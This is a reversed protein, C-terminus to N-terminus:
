VIAFQQYLLARVNFYTECLPGEVLLAGSEDNRIAVSDGCVLMGRQFGAEIGAKQLAAKFESLRVNGVFVSHHGLLKKQQVADIVPVSGGEASITGDIWALEQDQVRAFTLSSVLSDKLRAKYIFKELTVSVSGGVAPAHLREPAVIDANCQGLLHQTDQESGHVLILQQPRVNALIKLMSDGDSRGEFDMYYIPSEVKLTVTTQMYRSPEVLRNADQDVEMPAAEADTEKAPVHVTSTVISGDGSAFDEPRIAEGYDDVIPKEEAIAFMPYTRTQRKFIPKAAGAEEAMIDHRQLTKAQVEEEKEEEDSELLDADRAAREALRRDREQRRFDALEDGQLATRTKHVVEITGPNPNDCLTRGLTGVPPRDTFIICNKPSSAWRLFLELAFGAVLSELSALVVKPGPWQLVEDLAGVLRVHRLAFPDDKDKFLRDSLFEVFNRAKDVVTLPCYNLVFIPYVGLGISGDVKSGWMDNLVQILELVRGSTDTPLLVSGDSRLTSIIRSSLQRDLDKRAVAERAAHIANTILLTPRLMTDLPAGLLHRERRHNYDVAYVLEEPEKTIKWIAGGLMHGAPYATITIGPAKLPTSQSYKVHECKSKINDIDDLTFVTFDEQDTRAGVADYLNLIGMEIVPDTGYIPCDLGFKSIAYPLGGFHMLDQHSILVADIDPCHPELAALDAPNFSENWGCDLLFTFDDIELLYCLPAENYAGSIVRFNIISTM